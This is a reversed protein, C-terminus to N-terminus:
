RGPPAARRLGRLQQQQEASLANKIRLLAALHMRKIQREVDLVRDVQALVAAEQASPQALLETLKQQEEQMKWQFDVAQAQLAKVADTITTRQEATLGIARQHQMVLEPPFLADEMQDPRQPAPPAHAPVQALLTGPGLLGLLVMLSLRSMM